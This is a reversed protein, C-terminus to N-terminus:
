RRGADTCAVRRRRTPVPEARRAALAHRLAVSDATTQAVALANAAPTEDRRILHGYVDLTVTPKSHGM